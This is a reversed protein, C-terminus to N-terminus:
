LFHIKALPEWYKDSDDYVVFVQTNDESIHTITGKYWGAPGGTEEPSWKCKVRLSPITESPMIVSGDKDIRIIVQQLPNGTPTVRERCMRKLQQAATFEESDGAEDHANPTSNPLPCEPRNRKGTIAFKHLGSHRDRLTCGFTGCQPIACAKSLLCLNRESM